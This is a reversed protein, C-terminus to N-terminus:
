APEVAALHRAVALGSGLLGLLGGTALLTAAGSLGIGDLRFSSDYLSALRNVPPALIWRGGEVLVTALLGGAMGYGLGSYLFPRRVFADTGGLLKTIVIEERRNEIDLRITNGVVLIVTIGLLATILWAGRKAVDMMAHLREVWERDLRVREVQPYGNFANVLEDTASPTLGSTPQVILVPPLPNKDLLEIARDFDSYRRFEDLAEESSLREVSAIDSRESLRAALEKQSAPELNRELFLSAQWGSRWPSTVSEINDVLGLFGAPLALAIGIVTATM